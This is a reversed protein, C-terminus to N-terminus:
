KGKWFFLALLVLVIVVGINNQPTAIRDGFTPLLHGEDRYSPLPNTNSRSIVPMFLPVDGTLCREV